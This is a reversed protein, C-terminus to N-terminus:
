LHVLKLDLLFHHFHKEFDHIFTMGKVAEEIKKNADSLTKFLSESTKSFIEQMNEDDSKDIEEKIKEINERETNELKNLELLVDDERKTIESQMYEFNCKEEIMTDVFANISDIMGM